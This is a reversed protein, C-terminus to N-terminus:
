SVMVYRCLWGGCASGGVEDNEGGRRRNADNAWIRITTTTRDAGMMWVSVVSVGSGGAAMWWTLTLRTIPVASVMGRVVSVGSFLAAALNADIM